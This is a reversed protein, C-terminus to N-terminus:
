SPLKMSEAQLFQFARRLGDCLSSATAENDAVYVYYTIVEQGTKTCGVVVINKNREDLYYTVDRICHLPIRHFVERENVDTVKLGYRTLSIQVADQESTQKAIIGLLKQRDIYEILSTGNREMGTVRGMYQLSFFQRTDLTFAQEKGKPKQVPVSADTGKKALFFAFEEDDILGAM